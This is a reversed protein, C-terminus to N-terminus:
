FNTRAFEGFLEKAATDYARAADEKTEFSGLYIKKGSVRIEAKYRNKYSNGTLSVGKFGSTSNSNLKRNAQNQSGTCVRLNEDVNNLGDGDWHDVEVDDSANMIECHMFITKNGEQRRAYITNGERKPFWRYQKLYDFRHDSVRAVEGQTLPIEKM